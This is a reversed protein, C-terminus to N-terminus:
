DAQLQLCMAQVTQLRQQLGRLNVGAVQLVLQALQSASRDATPGALEDGGSSASSQAAKTKGPGADADMLLGADTALM